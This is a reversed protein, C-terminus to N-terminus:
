RRNRKRTVCFYAIFLLILLGGICIMTIAFPSM